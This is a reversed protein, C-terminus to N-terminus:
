FILKAELETTCSLMRKTKLQVSMAPGDQESRYASHVEFCRITSLRFGLPHADYFM